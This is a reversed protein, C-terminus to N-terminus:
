QVWVRDAAWRCRMQSRIPSPQLRWNRQAPALRRSESEHKIVAVHRTGSTGAVGGLAPEIFPSTLYFRMEEEALLSHTDSMSGGSAAAICKALVRNEDQFFGALQDRQFNLRATLHCRAIRHSNAGEPIIQLAFCGENLSRHQM